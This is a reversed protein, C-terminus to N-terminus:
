SYKLGFGPGTLKGTAVDTGTPKGDRTPTETATATGTTGTQGANKAEMGRIVKTAQAPPGIQGAAVVENTPLLRALDIENAGKKGLIATGPTALVQLDPEAMSLECGITRRTRPVTETGTTGVADTPIKRNQATVPSTALSRVTSVLDFKLAAEPVKVKGRNATEKSSNSPVSVHYTAVNMVTTANVPTQVETKEKAEEARKKIEAMLAQM